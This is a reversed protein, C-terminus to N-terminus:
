FFKFHCAVKIFSDLWHWVSSHLLDGGEGPCVQAALDTPVHIALQAMLSENGVVVYHLATASATGQQQQQQQLASPQASQRKKLAGYSGHPQLPKQQQSTPKLSPQAALVDDLAVPSSNVLGLSHQSALSELSRQKTLPLTDAGAAALAPPLSTPGSTPLPVRCTIGSGPLVMVSQAKPFVPKAPAETASNHAALISAGTPVPVAPHAASFLAGVPATAASASVPRGREQALPGVSPSLSGARSRPTSAVSLSARLRLNNSAAAEKADLQQLCWELLAHALPHESESEASGILSALAAASVGAAASGGLAGPLLCQTVTPSGKTLTGTKDFVVMDIKSAAEL